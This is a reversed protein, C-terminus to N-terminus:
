VSPLEARRCRTLLEDHDPHKNYQDESFLGGDPIGAGRNKITFICQVKPKLSKGVENFLNSLAPYYSTETVAEGSSRIDRLTSLYTELPTM